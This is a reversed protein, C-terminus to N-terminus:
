RSYVFLLVSVRPVQTHGNADAFKRLEELTSQWKQNHSNKTVPKKKKVKPEERANGLLSRATTTEDVALQLIGNKLTMGLDHLKKPLDRGKFLDKQRLV